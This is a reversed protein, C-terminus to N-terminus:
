LSPRLVAGGRPFRYSVYPCAAAHGDSNPSAIRTTRFIGM